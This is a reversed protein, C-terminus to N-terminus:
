PPPVVSQANAALRRRYELPLDSQGSTVEVQVHADRWQALKTPAEKPRFVVKIKCEVKEEQEVQEALRYYDEVKHHAQGHTNFHAARLHGLTSGQKILEDQNWVSLGIQRFARQHPRNDRVIWKDPASPIFRCVTDTDPVLM